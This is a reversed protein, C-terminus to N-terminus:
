QRLCIPRYLTVISVSQVSRAYKNKLTTQFYIINKPWLQSQSCDGSSKVKQFSSIVMSWPFSPHTELMKKKERRRKAWILYASSSVASKSLHIHNNTISCLLLVSQLVFQEQKGNYENLISPFRNWIEDFSFSRSSHFM